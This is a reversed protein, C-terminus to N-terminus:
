AAIGGTTTILNRMLLSENNVATISLLNSKRIFSTMRKLGILKNGTPLFRISEPLCVIQTTDQVRSNSQVQLVTVSFFITGLEQLDVLELEGKHNM